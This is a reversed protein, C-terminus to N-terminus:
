RAKDFCSPDLKLARIAIKRALDHKGAACAAHYKAVLDTASPPVEQEETYGVQKVFKKAHVQRPMPLVEPESPQPEVVHPTVLVLVTEPEQRVRQYQKGIFPLKSLVPVADTVETTQKWGYLVATKGEPLVLKHELSNKAIKPTQIFHTFEVGSVGKSEEIEEVTAAKGKDSSRVYLCGALGDKKSNPKGYAAVRFLPVKESEMRTSMLNLGLDVYRHNASLRPELCMQLGLPIVENQPVFVMKEGDWKATLATTFCRQETVQITAAQGEFMTVKPAQMVHAHADGQMAELLSALQKDDFSAIPGDKCHKFGFDEKVRDYFRDSLTVFRVECAVELELWRRMAEFLGMIEEQVDPPANVVLSHTLPFFEITARGGADTWIAPSITNKILAILDDEHSGTCSRSCAGEKCPKDCARLYTAVPSISSGTSRLTWSGDEVPPTPSSTPIPTVLDVVQYVKQVMTPKGAKGQKAPKATQAPQQAARSPTLAVALLLTPLILITLLRASM